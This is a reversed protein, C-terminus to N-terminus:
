SPAAETSPSTQIASRADIRDTSSFTVNASTAAVSHTLGTVADVGIHAQGAVSTAAIKWGFAKRGSLSLMAQQIRYGEARSQPLCSGPLADITREVAWVSAFPGFYDGKRQRSGRHKAIQPAPHDGSLFIYPFSKDDRLLVNYRPRLQKILNSELLLAETETGPVLAILRELARRAGAPNRAYKIEWDAATNLAYGIQGPALEPWGHLLSYGDVLIRVLAM